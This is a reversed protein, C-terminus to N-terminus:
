QQEECTAGQKVSPTVMLADTLDTDGDADFDGFVNGTGLKYMPTFFLADALEVKATGKRNKPSECWIQTPLKSVADVADYSRVGRFAVVQDNVLIKVLYSEPLTENEWAGKPQQSGAGGKSVRGTGWCGGGRITFRAIGYADTTDQFTHPCDDFDFDCLVLLDCAEPPFILKVVVGGWPVGPQDTEIYVSYEHEYPPPSIFIPPINSGALGFGAELQDCVVTSGLVCLFLYLRLTAAVSM